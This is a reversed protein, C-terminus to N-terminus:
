KLSQRVMEDAQDQPYMAYTRLLDGVNMGDVEHYRRTEGNYEIGFRTLQPPKEEVKGPLGLRQLIKSMMEAQDSSSLWRANLGSREGYPSVVEANTPQAFLAARANLFAAPDKMSKLLDRPLPMVTLMEETVQEKGITPGVRDNYPPFGVMEPLIPKPPPGVPQGAQEWGKLDVGQAPNQLMAKMAAEGLIQEAAQGRGAEHSSPAVAQSSAAPTGTRIVDGAQLRQPSIGPNAELLEKVSMKLRKAVPDLTTEGPLVRTTGPELQPETRGTPRGLPSPGGGIDL